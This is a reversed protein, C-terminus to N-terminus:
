GFWWGALFARGGNRSGAIQWVLGAFAVALLPLAHVPPLAAAALVGLGFALLSRRWGTLAAVRGAFGIFETKALSM